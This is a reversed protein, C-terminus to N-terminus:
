IVHVKIDADASVGQACMAVAILMGAFVACVRKVIM